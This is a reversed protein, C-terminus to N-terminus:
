IELSKKFTMVSFFSVIAWLLTMKTAYALNIQVTNIPWQNVATDPDVHNVMMSGWLTFNFLVEYLGMGLLLISVVFFFTRLGRPFRTNIIDQSLSFFCYGFVLGAGFLYTIPKAYVPFTGPTPFEAPGGHPNNVFQDGIVHNPSPNAYYYFVLAVLVALSSFFFFWVVM